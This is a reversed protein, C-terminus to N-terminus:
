SGGKNMNYGFDQSQYYDIWYVEQKNLETRPCEELLEFSFNEVGDKLMAKYLINNPTDIGLGCKIHQKFRESIDVSQGIYCKGDLLNTIRYIGTHPGSGLVRSIMENTATRFYVEWIVKSIPRTNRLYPAVDKLHKIEKIDAESLNIRYKNSSNRKEEERKNAEIAATAKSHETRLIEKTESLEDKLEQQTKLFNAVFTVLMDEYEKEYDLRDTELKVAYSEAERDLNEAMNQYATNYIAEVSQKVIRQNTEVSNEIEKAKTQLIEVESELKRKNELTIKLCNEIVNSEKILDAKRTEQQGVEKRLEEITKGLRKRTIHYLFFFVASCVVFTLIIELIM